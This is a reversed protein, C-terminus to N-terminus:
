RVLVLRRTERADGSEFRLFYVGPAVRRDDDGRGDWTLAHEGAPRWRGAELARVLRGSADFVNANVPGAVTLQFRLTTWAVFPNPTGAGLLFPAGPDPPGVSTGACQEPLISVGLTGVAYYLRDGDVALAAGGVKPDFATASGLRLPNAPDTILAVHPGFAGDSVYAIEGAIEVDTCGYPMALTAVIQPATPDSIDALDLGNEFNAVAAIDGTIAISYASSSPINAIMFPTAPNSIDLVHVGAYSDAVYAYNGSVKVDYANVFTAVSEVIAPTAPNSVDVVYVGSYITSLLAYDGALDIGRVNDPTDLAGALAPAAPNSVDIISIGAESDALYVLSGRKVLDIAVGPTDLGGVLAPSLGAIQAVQL